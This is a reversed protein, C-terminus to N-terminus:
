LELAFKYIFRNIHSIFHLVELVLLCKLCLPLEFLMAHRLLSKSLYVEAHANFKVVKLFILVLVTKLGKTSCM